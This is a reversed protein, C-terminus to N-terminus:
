PTTAVVAIALGVVFLASTLATIVVLRILRRWWAVGADLEMPEELHPM